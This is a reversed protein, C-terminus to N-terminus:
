RDKGKYTLISQASVTAPLSAAALLAIGGVFLGTKSLFTTKM